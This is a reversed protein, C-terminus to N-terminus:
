NNWAVQCTGANQQCTGLTQKGVMLDFDGQTWFLRDKPFQLVGRVSKCELPVAPQESVARIELCNGTPFTAIPFNFVKTWRQAGLYKDGYKFNFGSLNIPKGTNNILTLVTSDYYILLGNQVAPSETPAPTGAAQTAQPTETPQSQDTPQATQATASAQDSPAASSTAAPAASTPTTNLAVVVSAVNDPLWVQDANLDVVTTVKVKGDTYVVKVV